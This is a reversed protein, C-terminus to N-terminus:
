TRNYDSKLDNIYLNIFITRNVAQAGSEFDVNYVSVDGTKEMLVKFTADGGEATTGGSRYALAYENDTLPCLFSPLTLIKTYMKSATPANFVGAIRVHIMRTGYEIFSGNTNMNFASTVSAHSKFLTGTIREKYDGLPVPSQNIMFNLIWRALIDAYNASYHLAGTDADTFFQNKMTETNVSIVPAGSFADIFTWGNELAYQSYFRWYATQPIIWSAPMQRNNKYTSMLYVQCKPNLAQIKDRINNLTDRMTDLSTQSRVDNIGCWILLIDYKETESSFLNAQQALLNGSVALSKITTGTNAILNKFRKVWSVDRTEDTLSDGLVCIKKNEMVDLYSFGGYTKEIENQLTGDDLWKKLQEQVYKPINNIKESYENKFKEFSASLEKKFDEFNATLEKKFNESSVVLEKVTSILWDLNTEHFNTFPFKNWFAM